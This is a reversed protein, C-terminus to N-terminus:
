SSGVKYLRIMDGNPLSFSDVVQFHDPRDLIYRNIQQLDSASNAVWGQDKESMLIYDNGTILSEDFRWIRNLLVPSKSLAIYLGFAGWDFRPIDPIMGLRIPRQGSARVKDLVRGIQWDERAPPGWLDFYQQTYLNWHWSLPGEVGKALVIAAPLQPVGFSVLYHQFLLLPVLLIVLVEKRQFLQASILAVAPLLPASYRPDKNQFFMLGLWGGVLWLVVPLWKTDFKRAVLVAGAVFAVFLPLFLQYGELARLYFVVAALSLRGPDGESVAGANNVNALQQLSRGAPVYWYIAIAGAIGAAIAANKLNKRALWAAPLLVFLPFTWKTLMGLGCVVGFIISNRRDSFERTRLLMWVAFAVMSTLWYDVLTERSLWIMFPFFVVLVAAAAAPVPKLLSRGIGYTAIILVAAAPINAWQAADVTQGFVGYFLAVITHYLPPYFGTLRPVIAIAGGGLNSFADYIRLAATQHYAMDWFPPRTDRAIWILNAATVYLFAAVLLFRHRIAMPANIIGSQNLPCM